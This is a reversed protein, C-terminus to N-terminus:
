AGEPQQVDTASQEPAPGLRPALLDEVRLAFAQLRLSDSVVGDLQQALRAITGDLEPALGRLKKLSEREQAFLRLGQTAASNIFTGAKRLAGLRQKADESLGAHLSIALSGAFEALRNVGALSSGQKELVAGLSELRQQAESALRHVAQKASEGTEAGLQSLRDILESGQEMLPAVGELIDGYTGLVERAAGFLADLVAELAASRERTFVPDGGQSHIHSAQPWPITRPRFDTFPNGHMAKGSALDEPARRIEQQLPKVRAWEMGYLFISYGRLDFPVDEISQSILVTPKNSAHALGLEYLVNPNTGTLDALILDAHLIRGVVDAMVNGLSPDKDARTAEYGALELPERVFSWVDDFKPAFPM